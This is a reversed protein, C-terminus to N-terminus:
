NTMRVRDTRSHMKLEAQASSGNAFADKQQINRDAENPLRFNLIFLPAIITRHVHVILSM